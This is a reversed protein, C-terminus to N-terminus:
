QNESLQKFHQILHDLLAMRDKGYQGRYMSCEVCNWYAGEPSYQKHPVPFSEDGSYLPWSKYAIKCQRKCFAHLSHEGAYKENLQHYINTCLGVGMYLVKSRKKTDQLTTRIFVLTALVKQADKM